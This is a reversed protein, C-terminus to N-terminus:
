AVLLKLANRTVTLSEQRKHRIGTTAHGDKCECEAFHCSPWRRARRECADVFSKAPHTCYGFRTSQRVSEGVTANRLPLAMM